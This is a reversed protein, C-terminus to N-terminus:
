VTNEIETRNSPFESGAHTMFSKEKENEEKLEKEVM